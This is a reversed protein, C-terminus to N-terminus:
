CKPLDIPHGPLPGLFPWFEVHPLVRVDILPRGLFPWFETHPSVPCREFYGALFVVCSSWSTDVGHM